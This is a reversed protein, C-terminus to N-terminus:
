HITHRPIGSLDGDDVILDRCRGGGGSGGGSGGDVWCWCGRPSWVAVRAARDPARAVAIDGRHHKASPVSM